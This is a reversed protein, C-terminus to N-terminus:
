CLDQKDDFIEKLALVLILQIQFYVVTNDALLVHFINGVWEENCDGITKPFFLNGWITKRMNELEKLMLRRNSHNTANSTFSDIYNAVM